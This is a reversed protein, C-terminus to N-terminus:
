RGHGSRRCFYPRGERAAGACLPAALQEHDLIEIVGRGLRLTGEDRLQGLVRSVNERTAGVQEALAQHTVRVERRAAGLQLLLRVVRGGITSFKMAEVEDSLERVRQALVQALRIAAVPRRELQARFAAASVHLVDVEEDATANVSHQGDDIASMQGLIEGPGCLRLVLVQGEPTLRWLRVRGRVLVLIETGPDGARFLETGAGLTRKRGGEALAQRGAPELVGLVASRRLVELIDLGRAM